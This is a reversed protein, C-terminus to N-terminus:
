REVTNKAAQDVGKNPDFVFRRQQQDRWHKLNGLLVPGFGPVALVRHDVIDAATEIGYSQLMAKKAAGVGKIRAHPLRCRDLHSRLQLRYKNAELKQFEQLRRQPLSDYEMRLGQLYSYKDQFDKNSVHISWTNQLNQWRSGADAAKREIEKKLSQIRSSAGILTPRGAALKAEATARQIEVAM